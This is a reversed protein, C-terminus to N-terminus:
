AGSPHCISCRSFTNFLMVLCLSCLWHFSFAGCLMEAWGDYINDKTFMFVLLHYGMEDWYCGFCSMWGGRLGVGDVRRWCWVGKGWRGVGVVGEVGWDLEAGEGV